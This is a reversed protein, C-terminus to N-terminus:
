DEFIDLDANRLLNRFNGSFVFNHEPFERGAMNQDIHSFLLSIRGIKRWGSNEAPNLVHVTGETSAGAADIREITADYRLCQGPVADEELEVRSIKALIVKEKYRNVSGVLLGATQAMGEIILSGPMLPQSLLGDSADFHDHLHDEAATVNKVTQMSHDPEYATIRDIWMWHM